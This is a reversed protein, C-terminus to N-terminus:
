IHILSLPLTLGHEFASRAWVAVENAFLALEPDYRQGLLVSNCQFCLTPMEIQGRLRRATSSHGGVYDGLTQVDIDSPPNVGRPPVHDKTLRGSQGCIACRGKKSMTHNRCGRSTRCAFCTREAGRNSDNTCESSSRTWHWCAQRM